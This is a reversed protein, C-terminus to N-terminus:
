CDQDPDFRELNRRIRERYSDDTGGQGERKKLEWLPLGIRVMMLDWKEGRSGSYKAEYIIGDAVMKRLPALATGARPGMRCRATRAAVVM